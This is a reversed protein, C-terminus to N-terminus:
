AIYVFLAPIEKGLDPKGVLRVAIWPLEGATLLLANGNGAGQAHIRFNQKKVFDEYEGLIKLYENFIGFAISVDGTAALGPLLRREHMRWLTIQEKTFFIKMPDLAKIYSDFLKSSNEPSIDRKVYHMKSFMSTTLNAILRLEETEEFASFAPVALVAALVFVCIKKIQHFM